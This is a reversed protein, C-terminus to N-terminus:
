AVEVIGRPTRVRARLGQSAASAELPEEPPLGAAHLRRLLGPAEPHGLLLGELRCGADPLRECPHAGEWRIV